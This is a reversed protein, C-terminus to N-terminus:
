DELIQRVAVQLLIQPLITGLVVSVYVGQVVGEATGVQHPKRPVDGCAHGEQRGILYPLSADWSRM